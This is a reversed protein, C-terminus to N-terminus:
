TPTGGFQRVGDAGAVATRLRVGQGGEAARRVGRFLDLLRVPLPVAPMSDLERLSRGRRDKPGRLLEAAFASTGAVKETLRAEGCGLMYQVLPECCSKIARGHGGDARRDEAAFHPRVGGAPVPGRPDRLPAPSATTCKRRTDLVLLAVLDSHPTLYNAVTFRGRLDTVNVGGPNDAPPEKARESVCQNGRHTRGSTGTIYWGGLARRVADDSRRPRQGAVAGAPGAPRHVALPGPAGSVGPDAVRRSLEPLRRNAPHLAATPGAAPRAHLVGHRNRTPRRCRWSTAGGASGSMCRTTSTFRGRRGPGSASGTAHEDQLVCCRRPNRSAWGGSSPPSTATTEDFKPRVKGSDIAAQLRSVVNDPDIPLLPDAATRPRGRPPLPPPRGRGRHRPRRSPSTFGSTTVTGCARSSRGVPPPVVAPLTSM